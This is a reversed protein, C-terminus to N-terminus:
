QSPHAAHAHDQAEAKGGGGCCNLLHPEQCYPKSCFFFFFFFFDLEVDGQRRQCCPWSLRAHSLLLPYFWSGPCFGLPIPNSIASKCVSVKGGHAQKGGRPQQHAVLPRHHEGAVWLGCSGGCVWSQCPLLNGRELQERSPLMLNIKPSGSTLFSWRLGVGPTYGPATQRVHPLSSQSAALICM